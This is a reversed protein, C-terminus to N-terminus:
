CRSAACDLAALLTCTATGCPECVDVLMLGCALMAASVDSRVHLNHMAMQVAGCLSWGAWTAAVPEGALSWVVLRRHLLRRPCILALAVLLAYFLYALAFVRHAAVFTTNKNCVCM